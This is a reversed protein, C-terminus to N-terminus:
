SGLYDGAKGRAPEHQVNGEAQDYTGTHFLLFTFIVPSQVCKCHVLGPDGIFDDAHDFGVLELIM